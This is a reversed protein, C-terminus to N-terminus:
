LFDRGLIKESQIGSFLTTDICPLNYAALALLTDSHMAPSRSISNKMPQFKMNGSFKLFDRFYSSSTRNPLKANIGHPSILSLVMHLQAAHHIESWIAGTPLPGRSLQPETFRYKQPFLVCGKCGESTQVDKTAKASAAVRVAFSANEGSHTYIWKDSFPAIEARQAELNGALFTVLTLLLVILGGAVVTSMGKPLFGGFIVMNFFGYFDKKSSPYEYQQYALHCITQV